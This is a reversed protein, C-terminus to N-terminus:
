AARLPDSIDSRDRCTVRLLTAVGSQVTHAGDNKKEAVSFPGRRERVTLPDLRDGHSGRPGTNVELQQAFSMHMEVYPRLRGNEQPKRGGALRARVHLREGLGVFIRRCFSSIGPFEVGLYNSLVGSRTYVKCTVLRPSGPAVGSRRRQALPHNQVNIKELNAGDESTIERPLQGSVVSSIPAACMYGPLRRQAAPYNRVNVKELNVGDKSTIDHPPAAGCTVSGAPAARM